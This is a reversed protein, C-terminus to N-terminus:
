RATAQATAPDDQVAGTLRRLGSGVLFLAVLALAAVLVDGGSLPLGGVDSARSPYVRVPPAGTAVAAPSATAAPASPAPRQHRTTAGSRGASGASKPTAASSAGSAAPAPAPAPTARISDGSGSGSAGGSGGSGGGSGGVLTSGLVVQEGGGPGGYGSLLPDASAGSPLLLLVALLTLTFVRVMSTM